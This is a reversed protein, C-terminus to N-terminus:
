DAASVGVNYAQSHTGNWFAGFWSTVQEEFYTRNISVGNDYAFNNEFADYIYPRELFLQFNSSSGNTFTFYEKQHGIRLTDVLPLDTLAIWAHTIFINTQPTAQFSKFDSGKSFDAELKYELQPGAFGYCGLRFRRFDTGDQLPTNLSNQLNAPTDYWGNDFDFRGGVAISPPSSTESRNASENGLAENLRNELETVRQALDNSASEQNVRESGHVTSGPLSSSPLPLPLPPAM